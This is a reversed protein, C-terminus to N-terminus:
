TQLKRWATGDQLENITFENDALVGAWNEREPRPLAELDTGGMFRAACDNSEVVVPVGALLATVAAASSWTVLAHADVLDAQLSAGLATKNRSWPRLRLERHTQRRLRDITQSTWSGEYGAVTRMFSDSQPCVIIHEGAERWPAIDIGLAAFRRGDSEGMGTHQLRNKTVRFRTERTADFMSNDMYYWDRGSSRVKQWIALNSQDVGYFVAPGERLTSGIQGGCGRAFALCLNFSKAKNAVPYATVSM